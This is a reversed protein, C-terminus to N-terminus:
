TSKIEPGSTGNYVDGIELILRPREVTITKVKWKDGHWGIYRINQFNEFAFADAVISVENSIVPNESIRDSGQLRRSVRREDGKYPRPTIVDKFIGPKVETNVAFGIEGAWKGM